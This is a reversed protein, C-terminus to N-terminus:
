NKFYVFRVKWQYTILFRTLIINYSIYVKMFPSFSGWSLVLWLIHVKSGDKSWRAGYGNAVRIEFVVGHPPVIHINMWCSCTILNRIVDLANRNKDSDPFHFVRSLLVHITPIMCCTIVPIAKWFYCHVRLLLFIVPVVWANSGWMCILSTWTSSSQLSSSVVELFVVGTNTVAGTSTSQCHGREM